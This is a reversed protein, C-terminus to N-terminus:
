RCCIDLILRESAATIEWLQAPPTAYQQQKRCIINRIKKMTAQVVARAPRAQQLPVGGVPLQLQMEIGTKGEIARLQTSNFTYVKGAAPGPDAVAGTQADAKTAVWKRFTRREDGGSVDRQLWEVEIELDGADFRTRTGPVTGSNTHTTVM